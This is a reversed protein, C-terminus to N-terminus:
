AYRKGERSHGIGLSFFIFCLLLVVSGMACAQTMDGKEVLRLSQAYVTNLGFTEAAGYGALSLAIATFIASRVDAAIIKLDIRRFSTGNRYGLSLSTERCTKRLARMSPLVIM